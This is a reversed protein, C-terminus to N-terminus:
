KSRVHVVKAEKRRFVNEIKKQKIGLFISGTTAMGLHFEM